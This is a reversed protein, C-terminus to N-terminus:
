RMLCTQFATYETGCPDGCDALKCNSYAQQQATCGTRAAQANELICPLVCNDNSTGCMECVQLCGDTHVANMVCEDAAQKQAACPSTVCDIASCQLLEDILAQCGTMSGIANASPCFTECGLDEPCSTDLAPCTAACSPASRADTRHADTRHADTGGGDTSGGGGSCATAIASLALILTVSRM